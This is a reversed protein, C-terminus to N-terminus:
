PRAGLGPLDGSDWHKGLIHTPRGATSSHADALAFVAQAGAAIESAIRGETDLLVAMPTGNAGFPTGAQQSPDLLVPSRLGMARADEVTGTSVVILAPAGLPPAADWNKLDGLMQQCFGCGPNWFLVLTERGGLGTLAVIKGDLDRLQLAPALDGLTASQALFAQQGNGKRVRAAATPAAISPHTLAGGACQTVLARIADAGEALLSGVTSDPRVLVAAPTGWAQYIDAVERKRQLLVKVNDLEAMKTRNDAASGESVLAISLKAGYERQWSGVEPLLAQCPGCNPNTFLLLLPKADALLDDLSLPEGHLEDLRFSPAPYDIPLGAKLPSPQTFAEHRNPPADLADLRLLIRGQQRLVQLLLAAQGLLLVGGFLGGLVAVRNPITLDGFWSVLSPGHNSKGQWVLFGAVVALVLNRFLTSWGVPASHLQGFCHCDPARGRAMNVSIGILFALLLFLAGIAGLWASAVPLLIAAVAIEIIPLLIGLVAALQKPVGFGILAARSGKLDAMKALGAVMFVAILILRATILAILM